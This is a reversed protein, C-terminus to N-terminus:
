PGLGIRRLLDDFRPDDRLPDMMPDINLAVLTRTREEFAKELWGFADDIQGLMAHNMALEYPSVYKRTAEKELYGLYWRRAGDIGGAVYAQEHATLEEPGVGFLRLQEQYEAFAEGYMGMLEYAWAIDEHWPFDPYLDYTERFQEAARDYQRTAFLFQGINMIIVLSLPDRRRAEDLRTWAEDYRGM